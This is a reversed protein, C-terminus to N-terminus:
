MKLVLYKPRNKWKKQIVTAAKFYKKVFIDRFVFGYKDQIITIKNIPKNTFYNFNSTYAIEKQNDKLHIKGNKKYIYEITTDYFEISLYYEDNSKMADFIVPYAYCNM